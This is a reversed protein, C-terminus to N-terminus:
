EYFVVVGQKLAQSVMSIPFFCSQFCKCFADSSVAVESLQSIWEERESESFPPPVVEFNKEYDQKEIDSKPIQGSCLIDIANSKSPRKTGTKWKLNVARENFRM